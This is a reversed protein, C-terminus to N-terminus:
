RSLDQKFFDLFRRWNVGTQRSGGIRTLLNKYQRDGMNINHTHLVWEFDDVSIKGRGMSDVDKFSNRLSRMSMRVKRFLMM